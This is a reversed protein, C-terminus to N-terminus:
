AFKEPLEVGCLRAVGTGFSGLDDRLFSTVLSNYSNASIASQATKLEASYAELLEADKESLDKQRLSVEIERVQGLVFQYLNALGSPSTNPISYRLAKCLDGTENTQLGHSEALQVIGSCATCVTELQEAIGGAASFSDTVAECKPDLKAHVSIVSSSCVIILCILFAVLPKKLFSM